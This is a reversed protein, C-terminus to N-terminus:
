KILQELKSEVLEGRLNVAIVKGDPGILFNSPVAKIAYQVATPDQYGKLNSVNMWPVDDNELASIWLSKDDDISYGLIEFNKSKFRSYAKKLYPFEARCPICWSAWFDVLVYKGRLDTLKVIKGEVTKASFDQLTGGIMLHALRELHAGYEEGEKTARIRPSLMQYLERIQPIEGPYTQSLDNQVNFRLNLVAFSMKSDPYQQIVNKCVAFMEDFKKTSFLKNSASQFLVAQPSGKMKANKLNTIGDVTLLDGKGIFLQLDDNYVRKSISNGYSLTAQHLDTDKITGSFAFAGDKMVVSDTIWSKSTGDSYSFYAKKYAAASASVKGRLTFNDTQAKLVAPALLLIAFIKKM